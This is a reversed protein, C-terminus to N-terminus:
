AMGLFRKLVITAALSDTRGDRRHSTRLERAELTTGTERQLHVEFGQKRLYEALADVKDCLPVRNGSAALPYGLVVRGPGHERAIERLRAVLRSRSPNLIPEQPVVVGFIRVAVGVRKLGWDIGVDAAAGEDTM